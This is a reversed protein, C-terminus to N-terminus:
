FLFINQFKSPRSILKFQNQNIKKKPWLIRIEANEAGEATFINKAKSLNLKEQIKGEV